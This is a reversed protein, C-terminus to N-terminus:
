TEFLAFWPASDSAGANRVFGACAFQEADPTAPRVTLYDGWQGDPSNAGGAKVQASIFKTATSQAVCFSPFRNPGGVLYAMGLQGARNCGLAPYATAAATEFFDNNAKLTLTTANISAMRIYPFPRDSDNRNAVWAFTLTSGSKAGGTIRDDLRALWTNGNPTDAVYNGGLWSKIKIRKSQAATKNEPWAFVALTSTDVHAAFYATKGLNQALRLNFLTDSRVFDISINGSKIDKLRIRAVASSVWEDVRFANTSVYLFNTGIALDPFDLFRNAPIGLSQPTLDFLQWNGQVADAASAFALRQVNGGGERETYQLLWVFRDIRAIYHVVQDCCFSMGDPDPFATEPNIWKFTKGRDRSIAAFWNGTYFVVDGAVAVSPECVNSARNKDAVAGLETAQISLTPDALAAASLAKRKQGIARLAVPRADAQIARDRMTGRGFKGVPARPIIRRKHIKTVKPKIREAPAVLAQLKEVLSVASLQASGKHLTISAM